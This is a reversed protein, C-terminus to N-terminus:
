KNNSSNINLTKKFLLLPLVLNAIISFVWIILTALIWTSLGSISIGDSLLNTVVLGVLTTVLAIGGVLFTASTLAIKLVLPGLILTALTFIVTAVVFSVGDLSFGDLLVSAAILGVANAMLSISVQALLRLM